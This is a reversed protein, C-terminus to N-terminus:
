LARRETVEVNLYHAVGTYSDGADGGIRELKIYAHENASCNTVNVSTFTVSRLQGATAPGSSNSASATNYTPSLLDEGPGVCAISIQTRINNSSSTDGTYEVILDVTGTLDSPWKFHTTAASTAADVATLIGSKTGSGICSKGMAGAAPLDWAPGATANDCGGTPLSFKITTPSPIYQQQTGGYPISSVRGSACDTFVRVENLYTPASPATGCLLDIKGLAGGTVTVGSPTSVMGTDDISVSSNQITVGGTGDARLVANDTSGTSGLITGAGGGGGGAPNFCGEANGAQDVGAAAQGSSCNTGNAALALATNVPGLTPDFLSIRKTHAPDFTTGQYSYTIDYVGNASYFNYEGTFIDTTFPNSKATVGNDSYITALTTTGAQYVYVTAGGIARGYQNRLTDSYNEMAWSPVGGSEVLICLLLFLLRKM